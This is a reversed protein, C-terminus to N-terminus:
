KDYKNGGILSSITPMLSSVVCNISWYYAFKDSLKAARDMRLDEIQNDTRDVFKENINAVLDELQSKKFFLISFNM